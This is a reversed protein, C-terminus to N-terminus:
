SFRPYALKTENFYNNIINLNCEPVNRNKFQMIFMLQMVAFFM